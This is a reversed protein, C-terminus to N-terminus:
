PAGDWLPRYVDAVSCGAAAALAEINNEIEEAEGAKCGV